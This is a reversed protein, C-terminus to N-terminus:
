NISLELSPYHMLFCVTVKVPVASDITNSLREYMNIYQKISYRDWATNTSKTDLYTRLLKVRSYLLGIFMILSYAGIDRTMRDLITIILSNTISSTDQIRFYIVIGIVFSGTLVSVFFYVKLFYELNQFIKKAGPITDLGYILKYSQHIYEEKTLFSIMFLIFYEILALVRYSLYIVENPFLSLVAFFVLFCITYLYSLRRTKSSGNFNQLFGFAFRIFLVNKIDCVLADDTM